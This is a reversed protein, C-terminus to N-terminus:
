ALTAVSVGVGLRSRWCWRRPRRSSLGAQPFTPSWAALPGVTLAPGLGHARQLRGMASHTLQFIVYPVTITLMWTGSNSIIAASWFLAYDRSRLAAFPGHRAEM